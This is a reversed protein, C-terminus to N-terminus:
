DCWLYQRTRGTSVKFEINGPISGVSTLPRNAKSRISASEIGSGIAIFKFKHSIDTKAREIFALLSNRTIQKCGNMCIARLITCNQIAASVVTNDANTFRLNLSKLRALKKIVQILANATMQKNHSIELTELEPCNYMLSVSLDTVSSESFMDIVLEKLLPCGILIDRLSNDDLVCIKRIILAEM